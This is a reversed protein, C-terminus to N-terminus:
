PCTEEAEIKIEQHHWQENESEELSWWAHLEDEDEHVEVSIHGEDEDVVNLSRNWSEKTRLTDQKRVAGAFEPTLKAVKRKGKEELRPGSDREM